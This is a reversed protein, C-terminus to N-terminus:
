VPSNKNIGHKKILKGLSRREKGAIKAAMTVNGKTESLLRTLYAKEFQNVIKTKAEKLNYQM